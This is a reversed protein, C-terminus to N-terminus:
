NWSSIKSTIRSNSTVSASIPAVALPDSPAVVTSAVTDLVAPASGPLRAAPVAPAGTPVTLSATSVTKHVAPVATAAADAIGASAQDAISSTSELAAGATTVAADVGMSLLPPAPAQALAPSPVASAAHAPSDLLSLLFYAFVAAGGIVALRVVHLVVTAATERAKTPM